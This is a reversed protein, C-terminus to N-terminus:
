SRPDHSLADARNTITIRIRKHIPGLCVATEVVPREERMGSTNRVIVTRLVPTHIRTFRGPHRGDLALFLTAMLDGGATETLEYRVVDLASTRAGTDIKVRIRRLNWETFQLYEKWGISLLERKASAADHPHASPELM